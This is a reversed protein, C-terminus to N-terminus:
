ALRERVFANAGAPQTFREFAATAGEPAFVDSRRYEVTLRSPEFVYSGYGHDHGNFMRVWPAEAMVAAEDRDIGVSTVSGGVYETAAPKRASGDGLAPFDSALLNAMFVHTDGSLFVVNDLGAQEVAGLIRARDEPYGDWDDALRDEQTTSIPAVVSQQGIVKWTAQSARLGEVLWNLQREGLISRPRGDGDGTRYQRGDLLFLDVLGGLRKRGFIRYREQPYVLRPIWEFAARYGAIRQQLSPTRASETYNNAVEHDDWVHVAPHLRHLERLGSDSRYLRYKARYSALDTADVPDLRPRYPSDSRGREYIYAGLVLYLDFDERAAHAHASYFGATYNQCSSSALRLPTQSGNPPLTRTRGIESVGTGSEWVYHYQRGPKLGGVRAKLTGNIGRGTPVVVNAVVRELDEDKAVILRAGSRPRETELRSWFTVARATPEGSAVGDLFDGPGVRARHSLLRKGWAPPVAAATAGVAAAAILERRTSDRM